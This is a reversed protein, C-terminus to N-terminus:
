LVKGGRITCEDSTSAERWGLGKCTNQGKCSNLATKCAGTGKCSNVGGCKVIPQKEGAMAPSALAGAGFMAAASAILLARKTM